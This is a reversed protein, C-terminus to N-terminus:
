WQFAANRDVDNDNGIDLICGSDQYSGGYYSEEGYRSFVCDHIRNYSSGDYIRSGAWTEPGSPNDFKCFAIENHFSDSMYFNRGCDLFEIGSVTVHSKSQLRICYVMERLVVTEGPYSRYVIRGTESAGSNEPQITENYTAARILVTDGAELSANAKEITCWPESLTGPGEDSCEGGISDKDVYFAGDPIEDGGSDGGADAGDGDAGTDAGDHGDFGDHDDDAGGADRGDQIQDAASADGDTTAGDESGADPLSGISGASCACLALSFFCCFFGSTAIPKRVM